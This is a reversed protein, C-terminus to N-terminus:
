ELQMFLVVLANMLASGWGLQSSLYMYTAPPRIVDSVIIWIYLVVLGTYLGIIM